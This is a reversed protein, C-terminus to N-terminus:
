KKLHYNETEELIRKLIQQFFGHYKASIRSLILLTSKIEPITYRM